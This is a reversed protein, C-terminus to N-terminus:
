LRHYQILERFKSLQTLLVEKVVLGGLSHAIFVLPRIAQDKQEADRLDVASGNIWGRAVARMAEIARRLHTGLVSIDQTSRNGHIRTDFGYTMVRGSPIKQPLSDLLWM